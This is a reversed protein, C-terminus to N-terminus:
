SPGQNQKHGSRNGYQASMRNDGIVRLIVVLVFGEKPSSDSGDPVYEM